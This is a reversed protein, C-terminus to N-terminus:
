ATVPERPLPRASAATVEPLVTRILLENFRESEETNPMHASNEFWVLQKKPAKLAEFYQASLVAPVEYDHRGLCFWVPVSVEPVRAFLNTRELEPYLAAVSQFIGRFFNVRDLLTYERSFVLNQLVVGFAGSRSGHYEGGHRGLILRETMFKSRWDRGTYPPPGMRELKRVGRRDGAKRAQELTWQYSILEGDAMNSVQGIGVYGSFLDPRISVALMGIATGWSHGVLLIKEQGFREALHTALAIIDHVFQRMTMGARDRGAAFSKAARRQDWNVVTFHQELARTNRRGLTLQSTGPGGHVFLVVPNGVDETRILVWQRTGNVLVRELTALGRPHLRRDIRPTSGPVVLLLLLAALVVVVWLLPVM